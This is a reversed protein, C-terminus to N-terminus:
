KFTIYFINYSNKYNYNMTFLHLQLIKNVINLGLGHGMEQNPERTFPQIYYVLNKSLRKAINEIYLTNNKSVINIPLEDSYKIANDILNKVAITMYYFDAVIEFDDEIEINVMSEDDISLKSLSELILTTVRFTSKNLTAFNLKERELLKNTLEEIDYFVQNISDITKTDEKTKIKEILFKGKTIPTKLEHSINRLLEERSKLIDEKQQLYKNLNDKIESLENGDDIDVEIIEEDNNLLHVIGNNLKKLMTKIYIIIRTSIIFSLCFTIVVLTILELKIMDIFADREQEANNLKNQLESIEEEILLETATSIDKFKENFLTLEFESSNNLVMDELDKQILEQMVDFYEFITELKKKENDEESNGITTEKMKWLESFLRNAKEKREVVINEKNRDVIIDLVLWAFSKNLEKIKETRTIQEYRHNQLSHMKNLNFTTYFFIGIMFLMILLVLIFATYLRNKITM